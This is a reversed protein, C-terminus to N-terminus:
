TTAGCGTRTRHMVLGHAGAFTKGCVPCPVRDATPARLEARVKALQAALRAEKERL